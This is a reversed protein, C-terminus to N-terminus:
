GAIVRPIVFTVMCGKMPLSQVDIRGGHLRAIRSAGALLLAGTGGAPHDRWEGDFFRTFGEPDLDVTEQSFQVILAPRVTTGKVQIRIAAREVPLLAFVSQVVGTLATTVLSVDLPMRYDPEPRQLDLRVGRLRAEAALSALVSSVLEGCNVEAGRDIAQGNALAEASAAVTRARLLEIGALDSLVSWRFRDNGAATIAPLLASVFNLGATVESFAPPLALERPAEAPGPASAPSIARQTVAERMNNRMEEDVDHVICPVSPLGANRAARLRNFGTIVHYASGQRAVLLPELVGMRRISQELDRLDVAEDPPSEIDDVAIDRVTRLPADGLLQEVYHRQHRMRFAPPLGERARRLPSEDESEIEHDIIQASEISSSRASPPEQSSVPDFHV